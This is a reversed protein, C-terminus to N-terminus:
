PLTPYPVTCYLVSRCPITCYPVTAYLMTSHWVMFYHIIHIGWVFSSMFILVWITCSHIDDINILNNSSILHITPEAIIPLHREPICTNHDTCRYLECSIIDGQTHAAFCTCWCSMIASTQSASCVQAGSEGGKRGAPWPRPRPSVYTHIIAYTYIYIYIYLSLSLSIAYYLTYAHRPWLM